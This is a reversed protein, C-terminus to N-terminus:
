TKRVMGIQRGAAGSTPPTLAAQVLALLQQLTCPKPAVFDVGRLALQEPSMRVPWGSSLIVPVKWRKAASAVEWGSAHPLESDTIVLDFFQGSLLRLAKRGESACVVQYGEHTLLVARLSALPTHDEVLLIRAQPLSKRLNTEQPTAERPRKRAQRLAAGGCTLVPDGRGQM